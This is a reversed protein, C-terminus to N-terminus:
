TDNGRDPDKQSPGSRDEGAPDKVAETYAASFMRALLSATSSDLNRDARLHAEVAMPTSIDSTQVDGRESETLVGGAVSVGLWKCILDLTRVDPMSATQSSTSTDLRRELRSLTAASVGIEESAESLTLRQVRRSRRLLTGIENVGVIQISTPPISKDNSNFTM